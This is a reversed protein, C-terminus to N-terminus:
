HHLHSFEPVATVAMDGKSGNMLYVIFLFVFDIIEEGSISHLREKQRHWDSWTTTNIFFPTKQTTVGHPEQLFRIWVCPTVVWFVGNKMTVATFVEFRVDYHKSKV